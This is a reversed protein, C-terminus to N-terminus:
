QWTTCGEASYYTPDDGFVYCPNGAAENDLQLLYTLRDSNDSNFAKADDLLTTAGAVDAITEVYTLTGPSSEFYHCVNTGAQGDKCDEGYWGNDSGTEALGLWFGASGGLDSITVTFSSASWTYTVDDATLAFTGGNDTDTTDTDAVATDATDVTQVGDCAVFFLLGAAGIFLKNM